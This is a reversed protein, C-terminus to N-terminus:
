DETWDLDDRFYPKSSPLFHCCVTKQKVEYRTDLFLETKDVCFYALEWYQM